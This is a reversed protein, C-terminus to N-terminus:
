AGSEPAQRGALGAAVNDHHGDGAFQGPEEPGFHGGGSGMASRNDFLGGLQNDLVGTTWFIVYGATPVLALRQLTKTNTPQPTATM